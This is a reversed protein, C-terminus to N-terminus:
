RMIDQMGVNQGTEAKSVLYRDMMVVRLFAGLRGATGLTGLM